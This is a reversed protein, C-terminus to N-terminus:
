WEGSLKQVLGLLADSEWVAGYELSINDYGFTNIQATAFNSISPELSVIQAESFREAFYRASLGCNGGLDLIRKPPSTPFLDDLFRFEHGMGIDVLVAFDSSHARIFYQKSKLFGKCPVTSVNVEILHHAQPAALSATAAAQNSFLQGNIYLPCPWDDLLQRSDISAVQLALLFAMYSVYVSIHM